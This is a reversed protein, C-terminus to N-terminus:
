MHRCPCRIFSAGTTDNEPFYIVFRVKESPFLVIDLYMVTIKIPIAMM